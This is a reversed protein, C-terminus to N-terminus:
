KKSTSMIIKFMNLTSIDRFVIDPSETSAIGDQTLKVWNLDQRTERIDLKIDNV